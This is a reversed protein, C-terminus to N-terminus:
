IDIFTREGWPPTHHEKTLCWLVPYPPKKLPYASAGDTLGIFLDPRLGLERIKLFVPRHDTGGRGKFHINKLFAPIDKPRIVQQVTSDHVLVTCEEVLDAVRAMEPAFAELQRDTISGSADVCFVVCGAELSRLTPM